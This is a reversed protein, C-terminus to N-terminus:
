EWDIRLGIPGIPQPGIPRSVERQLWKLARKDDRLLPELQNLCNKNHDQPAPARPRTLARRVAYPASPPLLPPLPLRLRFSPLSPFLARALRVKLWTKEEKTLMGEDVMRTSIPVCTLREFGLWIPGNFERKTQVHRVVLASEIRM